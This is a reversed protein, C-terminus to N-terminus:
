IHRIFQTTNHRNSYITVYIIITCTMIAYNHRTIKCTVASQILQYFIAEKNDLNDAKDM